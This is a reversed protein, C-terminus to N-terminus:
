PTGRSPRDPAHRAFAALQAALARQFPLRSECRRSYAAVVPVRAVIDTHRLGRLAMIMSIDAASFEGVLYEREGLEAAVAELRRALSAVLAPRRAIGWPERAAFHDIDGLAIIDPDISNLAAFMWAKARERAAPDRPLLGHREAIFLVIAGSEFIEIGDERYAPVQGFPQRARYGSARREDDSVQLERYALGAEELAWRVALDRVQGQFAPPAWRLTTLEIDLLRTSV